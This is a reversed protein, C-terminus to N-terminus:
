AGAPAPGDAPRGTAKGQHGPRSMGPATGKGPDLRDQSRILAPIRPIRLYRPKKRCSIGAHRNPLAGSTPVPISIHLCIDTAQGAPGGNSSDQRQFTLDSSAQRSCKKWERDQDPNPDDWVSFSCQMADNCKLHLKSTETAANSPCPPLLAIRPKDCPYAHLHFRGRDPERSPKPWGGPFPATNM